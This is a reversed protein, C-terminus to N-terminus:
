KTGCALIRPQNACKNYVLSIKDELGKNERKLFPIGLKKVVPLSCHGHTFHLFTKLKPYNAGDTVLKAHVSM